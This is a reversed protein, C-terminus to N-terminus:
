LFNRIINWGTAAQCLSLLGVGLGSLGHLLPLLTRRAKNRNMYLGSALSFGLLGVIIMGSTFHWGTGAPASWKYWTVFVGFGAGCIMLLAVALGTRVHRNWHFVTRAGLHNNRFRALGLFLNYLALAILLPMLAPHLFIMPVEYATRPM